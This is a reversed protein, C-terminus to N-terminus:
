ANIATLTRIQNAIGPELEMTAAAAEFMRDVSDKFSNRREKLGSRASDRKQEHEEVGIRRHHGSNPKEMGRLIHSDRRSCNTSKPRLYFFVISGRLRSIM